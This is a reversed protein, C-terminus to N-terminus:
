LINTSASTEPCLESVERVNWVKGKQGAGVTSELM